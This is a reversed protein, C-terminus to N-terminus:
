RTVLPKLKLLDQIKQLDEMHTSAATPVWLEPCIFISLQGTRIQENTEM